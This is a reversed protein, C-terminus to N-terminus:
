VQDGRIDVSPLVQCAAKAGPRTLLWLVIAPYIIGLVIMAVSGGTGSITYLRVLMEYVNAQNPVPAAGPQMQQQQQIAQMAMKAMNVAMTPVIELVAYGYCLVLRAIKAGSVWLALRLGWLKRMVLGIGSALLLLNLGAGTIFDVWMYVKFKPDDFGMDKINMGPPLNAKPQSEIEKRKAAIEAKEQDTKAEKELDDLTVISAKKKAEQQAQIKAQAQQMVKGFTPIVLVFYASSCLGCILLASAFLINLTGVVSVVRPNPAVYGNENPLVM